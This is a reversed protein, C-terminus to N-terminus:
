ECSGAVPYLVAMEGLAQVTCYLMLGILSYAILLSAPGGISLSRGSSIFLGAGACRDSGVDKPSKLTKRPGLMGISGGIAIMQLHRSKLDRKLPSNATAEVAAEIDLKGDAIILHQSSVTITPDRKFSDWVRQKVSGRDGKEDFSLPTTHGFPNSGSSSTSSRTEAKDGPFSARPDSSM